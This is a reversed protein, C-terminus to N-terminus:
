RVGDSACRDDSCLAVGHRHWHWPVRMAFVVLADPGAATLRGALLHAAASGFMHEVTLLGETPEWTMLEVRTGPIPPLADHAEALAVELTEPQGNPVVGPVVAVQPDITRLKERTRAERRLEARRSV